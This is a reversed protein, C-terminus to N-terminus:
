KDQFGYSMSYKKTPTQYAENKETVETKVNKV